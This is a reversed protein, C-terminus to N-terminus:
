CCCFAYLGFYIKIVVPKSIIQFTQLSSKFHAFQSYIFLPFDNPSFEFLEILFVSKSKDSGVCKKPLPVINQLIQLELYLRPIHAAFNCAKGKVISISPLFVAAQIAKKAFKKIRM